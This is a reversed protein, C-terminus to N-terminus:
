GWDRLGFVLGVPVGGAERRMEQAGVRSGSSFNKFDLQM